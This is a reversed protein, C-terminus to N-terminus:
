EGLSALIEEPDLREINQLVEAGGIEGGGHLIATELTKRIAELQLKRVTDASYLPHFDLTYKSPYLETPVRKGLKLWKLAESGIWAVPEAQQPKVSDVRIYRVAYQPDDSRVYCGHIPLFRLGMEMPFVEAQKTTDIM